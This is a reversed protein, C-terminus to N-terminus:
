RSRPGARRQSFFRRTKSTSRGRHRCTGHTTGCNTRSPCAETGCLCGPSISAMRTRWRTGVMIEELSLEEGGLYKAMLEDDHEVAAEIVEHRAQEVREKYADAVPMETFTKGMNEEDFVFEVRRLVDIHGTFLEGSGVPLQIPYAKKTLRDRIM